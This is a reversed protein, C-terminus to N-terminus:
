PPPCSPFPPKQRGVGGDGGRGERSPSPSSDIPLSHRGTLAIIRGTFEPLCTSVPESVRGSARLHKIKERGPMKKQRAPDRAGLFVFCLNIQKYVFDVNHLFPVILGVHPERRNRRTTGNRGVKIGKGNAAQRGTITLKSIFRHKINQCRRQLLHHICRRVTVPTAFCLWFSILISFLSTTSSHVSSGQMRSSILTSSSAM